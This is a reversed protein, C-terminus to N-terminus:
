GGAFGRAQQRLETGINGRLRGPEAYQRNRRPRQFLRHKQQQRGRRGKIERNAIQAFAQEHHRARGRRDGEDDHLFDAGLSRQFRQFLQGFRRRMTQAVAHLHTQWGAVENWSVDNENALAFANGGVGYRPAAIREDRILRNQRAFRRGDCFNGAGVRRGVDDGVGAAFM